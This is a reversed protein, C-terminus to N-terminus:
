GRGWGWGEGADARMAIVMMVVWGGGGGGWRVQMVEAPMRAGEERTACLLSETLREVLGCRMLYEQMVPLSLPPTTLSLFRKPM